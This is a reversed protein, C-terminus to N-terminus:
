YITPVPPLFSVNVLTLAKNLPEQLLTALESDLLESDLQGVRSASAMSSIFKPSSSITSQASNWADEWAPIM